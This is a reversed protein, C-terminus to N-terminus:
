ARVEGVVTAFRRRRLRDRWSRRRPPERLDIALADIAAAVDALGEGACAAREVGAAIGALHDAATFMPGDASVVAATLERVAAAIDTLQHCVVARHEATQDRLTGLEQGIALLAHGTGVQADRLATIGDTYNLGRNSSSSPRCDAEAAAALHERAKGALDVDPTTM